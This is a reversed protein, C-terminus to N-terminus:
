VIGGPSGRNGRGAFDDGKVGTKSKGSGSENCGVASAGCAQVGWAGDSRTTFSCIKEGGVRALIDSSRVQENMSESVKKLVVDGTPHGLSDNISKFHDIDVLILCYCREMM